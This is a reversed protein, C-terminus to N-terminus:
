GEAGDKAEDEALKRDILFPGFPLLSAVMMLFAHRFPLAKDLWALLVLLGLLIFLAGHAWGVIKVAMDIGMGYKLPMAVGLLLLFSVAEIKGVRRVRGVPDNWSAKTMLRHKLGSIGGTLRERTMIETPSVSARATKWRWRGM